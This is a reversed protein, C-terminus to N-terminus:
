WCVELIFVGVIGVRILKKVFIWGGGDVEIIGGNGAMVIFGLLDWDSSSLLM